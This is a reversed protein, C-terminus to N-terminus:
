LCKYRKKMPSPHFTELKMYLITPTDTIIQNLDLLRQIKAQKGQDVFKSCEEHFWVKHQKQKYHDLGTTGLTYEMSGLPDVVVELPIQQYM